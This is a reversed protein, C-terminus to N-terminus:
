FDLTSMFIAVPNGPSLPKQNLVLVYSCAKKQASGDTIFYIEMKELGVQRKILDVNEQLVQMEGFPLKVDLAEPGVALTEDKKFRLFPMCQKLIIKFDNTLFSDIANRCGSEIFCCKLMSESSKSEFCIIINNVFVIKKVKFCINSLNELRVVNRMSAYTWGKLNNDIIEGM